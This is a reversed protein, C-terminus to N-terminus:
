SIMSQPNLVPQPDPALPQPSPTPAPSPAERQYYNDLLQCSLHLLDSIDPRALACQAIATLRQAIADAVAIKRPSHDWQSIVELRYGQFFVDTQDPPQAHPQGPHQGPPQGLLPQGLPSAPPAAPNSM